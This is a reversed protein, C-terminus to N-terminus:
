SELGQGMAQAAAAWASSGNWVVRPGEIVTGDPASIRGALRDQVYRRLAENTALKAQSRGKPPDILM